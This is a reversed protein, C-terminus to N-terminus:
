AIEKERTTEAPLICSSLTGSCIFFYLSIVHASVFWARFPVLSQSLLFPLIICEMLVTTGYSLFLLLTFFPVTTYYNDVSDYMVEVFRSSVNQSPEFEARFSRFIM